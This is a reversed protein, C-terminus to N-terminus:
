SSSSKARHMTEAWPKANLTQVSTKRPRRNSLTIQIGTPSQVETWSSKATFGQIIRGESFPKESEFKKEDFSEFTFLV